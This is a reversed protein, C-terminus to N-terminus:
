IPLEFRVFLSGPCHSWRDVGPLMTLLVSSLMISGFPLRMFTRAGFERGQFGSEHASKKHLRRICNFLWLQKNRRCLSRRWDQFPQIAREAKRSGKHTQPPFGVSGDEGLDGTAGAFPEPEDFRALLWATSCPSVANLATHLVGYSDKFCFLAKRELGLLDLTYSTPPVSNLLLPALFGTSQGGLMLLFPSV